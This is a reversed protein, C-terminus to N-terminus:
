SKGAAAVRKQHYARITSEFWAPRDGVVRDPKPIDYKRAEEGAKRRRQARKHLERFSADTPSTTGNLERLLAAAEVLSLLKPRDGM